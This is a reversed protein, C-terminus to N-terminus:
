FRQLIYVKYIFFSFDILMCMVLLRSVTEELVLGCIRVSIYTSAKLEIIEV